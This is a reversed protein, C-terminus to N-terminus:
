SFPDHRSHCEAVTTLTVLRTMSNILTSETLRHSMNQELAPVSEFLAFARQYACSLRPSRLLRTEGFDNRSKCGTRGSDKSSWCERHGFNASIDSRNRVMSQLQRQEIDALFQGFVPPQEFPPVLHPLSEPLGSRNLHRVWPLQYM